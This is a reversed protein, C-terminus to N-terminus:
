PRSGERQLGARRNQGDPAPTLGIVEVDGFHFRGDLDAAGAVCLAVDLHRRLPDDLEELSDDV